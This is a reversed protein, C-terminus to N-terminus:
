AATTGESTAVAATKTSAASVSKATSTAGAASSDREPDAKPKMHVPTNHKLKLHIQRMRSLDTPKGPKPGQIVVIGPPKKEKDKKGRQEIAAVENPILEAIAKWYNKEAEAHFRDRNAVYQKEKDRNSAKRNDLAIKQRRYFDIKYEDAEDIIDQLLEKEMKEKEELRIANLRRWERLPFGEEPEMVTPSSLIPRDSEGFGGDFGESNQEPSLSSLGGGASFNTPPTPPVDDGQNYSQNGFILPSDGTSDAAASEAEFSTSSEFRHSSLGSEFGIADDDDFPPTGAITSM